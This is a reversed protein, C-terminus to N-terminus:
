RWGRRPRTATTNLVPTRHRRGPGAASPGTACATSPWGLRGRGCSCAPAPGAPRLGTMSKRWGPRTHPGTGAAARLRLPASNWASSTPPRTAWGAHSRSRDPCLRNLVLNPGISPHQLQRALSFHPVSSKSAATAQGAGEAAALRVHGRCLPEITTPGLARPQRRGVSGQAPSAPRPRGARAVQAVQAPADM